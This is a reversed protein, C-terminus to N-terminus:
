KALGNEQLWDFVDRAMLAYGADNPHGRDASFYKRKDDAALEDRSHLRHLDLIPWGREAALRLLRENVLQLEDDLYTLLLIPFGRERALQGLRDLAPKSLAELEEGSASQLLVRTPGIWSVRPPELPLEARLQAFGADPHELLWRLPKTVPTAGFRARARGALDAAKARDGAKIAGVWEAAVVWEKGRPCRPWGYRADFSEAHRSHWEEFTTADDRLLRALAAAGVVHDFGVQPSIREELRLVRELADDAAAFDRALLPIWALHLELFLAGTAGAFRGALAEFQSQAAAGDGAALAARAHTYQAFAKDERNRRPKLPLAAPERGAMLALEWSYVDQSFRLRPELRAFDPARRFADWARQTREDLECHWFEMLWPGIAACGSTAVREFASDWEAFPIETPSTADRESGGYERHALDGRLTRVLTAAMRWTRLQRLWGAITRGVGRSEPPPLYLLQDGLLDNVGALFVVCRPTAEELARELQRVARTTSLGALGLNVVKRENGASRLLARLQDPYSMGASAGVGFTNSDGVCVIAGDGVDGRGITGFREYLAAAVALSAEVSALLLLGRLPWKM